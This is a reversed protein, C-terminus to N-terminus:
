RATMSGQQQRARPLVSFLSPFTYGDLDFPPAPPALLVPKSLLSFSVRFDHFAPFGSFPASDMWAYNNDDLCFFLVLVCLILSMGAMLNFLRRKM